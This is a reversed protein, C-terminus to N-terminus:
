KVRFLSSIPDWRITKVISFEELDRLLKYIAGIPVVDLIEETQFTLFTEANLDSDPDIKKKKKLDKYIADLTYSIIRKLLIYLRTAKNANEKLVALASTKASWSLEGEGRFKVIVHNNEKERRISLVKIQNLSRSNKNILWVPVTVKLSSVSKETVNKKRNCGTIYLVFGSAVGIIFQRRTLM